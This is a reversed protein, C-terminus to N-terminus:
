GPRPYDDFSNDRVCRCSHHFRPRADYRQFGVARPHRCVESAVSRTGTVICGSQVTMSACPLSIAQTIEFPPPFM